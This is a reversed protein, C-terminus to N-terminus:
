RHSHYSAASFPRLTTLVAPTARYLWTQQHLGETTPYIPTLCDDAVDSLQEPTRYEPHVMELSAPGRRVEGFCRLRRGKAFLRQQAANFHFLRLLLSGSGDTVQVLLSRRRGPRVEAAEVQVEISAQDGPRLSGVPWIRSRDQYRLPLHFLLDQVSHIALRALRECTKPGVGKLTSVPHSSFASDNM